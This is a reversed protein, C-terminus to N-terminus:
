MLDKEGSGVIKFMKLARDFVSSIPKTAERGSDAPKYDPHYLKKTLQQMTSLFNSADIITPTNDIEIPGEDNIPVDSSSQLDKLICKPKETHHPNLM